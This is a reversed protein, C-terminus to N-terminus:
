ICRTRVPISVLPAHSQLTQKAPCPTGQEHDEFGGASEAHRQPRSCPRDMGNAVTSQAVAFGLRLLEGQIRPAGWLVNEISMQRILAQLGADIPPRGGLNRSKWR